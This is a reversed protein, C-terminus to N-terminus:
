GTGARVDTAALRGDAGVDIDALEHVLRGVIEDLLRKGEEPSAGTPDGLVGNASVARVGSRRLVPLLEEIPTTTGPALLDSSVTWPAVFQLISTETLGAHADAGAVSCDTWSVARDEARLQVVADRLTLANGGHGNVFVVGEAWRCASRALEVLLMRLADHGVSVTGPFDEHEGSAGYEIAPAVVVRRSGLATVQRAAEHTAASAIMTDTALPLAPGHQEMAGLPVLLLPRAGDLVPWRLQGLAAVDSPAEPM